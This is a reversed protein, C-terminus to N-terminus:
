FNTVFGCAPNQNFDEQLPGYAPHHQVRTSIVGPSEILGRPLGKPSQYSLYDDSYLHSRHTDSRTVPASVVVMDFKDFLEQDSSQRELRAQAVLSTALILFSTLIPKM